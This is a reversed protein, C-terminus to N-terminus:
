AWVGQFKWSNEQWAQMGAAAKTSFFSFAAVPHKILVLMAPPVYAVWWRWSIGIKCKGSPMNGM